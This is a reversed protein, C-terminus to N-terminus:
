KIGRHKAAERIIVELVATSTLGMLAGIEALLKKAEESLRFTSPIKMLVVYM